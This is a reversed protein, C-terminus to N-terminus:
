EVIVTSDINTFVNNNLQNGDMATIVTRNPINVIFAMNKMLVLSDKGGKSEAQDMAQTLKVQQQPSLSMSRQKLRKEAHASFTVQKRLLADFPASSVNSAAVRSRLQHATPELRGHGHLELPNTNV